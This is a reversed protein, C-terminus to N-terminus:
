SEKQGIRERVEGLRKLLEVTGENNEVVYDSNNIFFTDDHQSNIRDKGEQITLNDRKVIRELRLSSKAIISIISDCLVNAGSEFLTPADLLIFPAGSTKIDVIKGKINETIYPFIIENLRTLKLRDSFVISGLRKRNLSKDDNLIAPSFETTLKELCESGNKVVDRAVSDCNIVSFGNKAFYESVVTKGAGTQGTLGVIYSM